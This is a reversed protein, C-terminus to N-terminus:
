RGRGTEHAAAGDLRGPTLPYLTPEQPPIGPCGYATAIAPILRSAAAQIVQWGALSRRQLTANTVPEDVAIRLSAPLQPAQVGQPHRNGLASAGRPNGFLELAGQGSWPASCPM